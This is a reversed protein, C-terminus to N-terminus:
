GCYGEGPEYPSAAFPRIQKLVLRGEPTVKFETDLLLTTGEPPAVDIPYGAAVDSLLLALEELQADDLVYTGPPVLTSAIDRDIRTVAGNEVLVRDLEAVVGPASSVVPDEGLQANITFRPDDTDSPNGTFAVGNALEEAFRPNVLMGMGVERHDLQYYEREEYAGFYWLSAWVTKIADDIPQAKRGPECASEDDGPRDPGCGSKSEYLGAGNFTLSDEANSSSRFRVMVDSEGFTSTIAERVQDLFAPDVVGYAIMQNRLAFLRSERLAADARFEEDALWLDITEAYTAMRAGDGVPALWSNDNMFAFYAGMPLGVGSAVHDHDAVSRLVALSAAKSGFRSVAQTRAEADGLAIEDLDLPAAFERDPLANLEAHPRQEAWHAEAEDITAVRVSYETPLAELRVLQGEYPAFAELAGAVQVNPTGRLGSLVNLHTLVDQRAETISAAMVGEIVLPPEELVVIDQWGFPAPGAAAFEEDTFRRVRGYALGTTYAEYQPGAPEPLAIVPFPVEGWSAIQEAHIPTGSVYALEGLPLRDQLQRYADYIADVALLQEALQETEVTFVFREGNPGPVSLESLTGGYFERTAKDIVLEKYGEYSLMPFHPEFAQAMLCHHSRYWNTDAFVVPIRAAGIAPALYKAARRLAADKGHGISLVDWTEDDAIEHRCASHGVRAEVEGCMDGHEVCGAEPDGFSGVDCFCRASEVDCHARDGCAGDCPDAAAPEHCGMIWLVAGM